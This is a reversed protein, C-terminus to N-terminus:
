RVRVKVEASLGVRLQDIDQENLGTLKVRVPVRQVVKTFNGVANDPPLLTFTAGTAPSLSEVEGEFSRGPIADVEVHARNGPAINKIENEKFNAIVWRSESSVFGLLPSGVPAFMGVEVSKRAITGNTPARVQTYALNLKAQEVQSQLAELKRSLEQATARATDLQQRTAAGSRFLEDIRSFNRRADEARAQLSAKESEVQSTTNSYDRNDIELLVDGAKVKQNEEVNVRTVYGAVKPSLMVTRAQIQANDTSVYFISQFIFYLATIGVLATVGALVNRRRAPINEFPRAKAPKTASNPNATAEM